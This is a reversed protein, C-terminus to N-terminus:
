ARRYWYDAAPRERLYWTRKTQQCSAKPSGNSGSSPQKKEGANQFMEDTETQSDPLCTQPQLNVANNQLGRRISLITQRSVGIERAIAASSEGKCIGRLLLIAQAPHFHKGEFVAKSYLNYIGQCQNCRYVSLNSKGTQRFARAEEVSTQCHPCKLGDPHFHQLLWETALEDSLLDVIPFDMILLGKMARFSGSAGISPIAERVQM